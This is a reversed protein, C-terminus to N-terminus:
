VKCETMINNSLYNLKDPKYKIILFITAVGKIYFKILVLLKISREDYHNFYIFHLAIVSIQIHIVKASTSPVSM